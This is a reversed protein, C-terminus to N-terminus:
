GPDTGPAPHASGAPKRARPERCPVPDYGSGGWPQCRMLRRATLWTGRVPGHVRYAEIAYESCTPHFRCHGSMVPALIAQYARIAVIFPLSLWLRVRDATM